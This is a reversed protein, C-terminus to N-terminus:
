KGFYLEKLGRQIRELEDAVEILFYALEAQTTLDLEMVSKMNAPVAIRMNCVEVIKPHPDIKAAMARAKRALEDIKSM